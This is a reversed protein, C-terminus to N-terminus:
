IKDDIYQKSSCSFCRNQQSNMFSTIWQSTLLYNFLHCLTVCPFPWDCFLLSYLSSNNHKVNKLKQQLVHYCKRYRQQYPFSIRFTGIQWELKSIVYWFLMFSCLRCSSCRDLSFKCLRGRCLGVGHCCLSKLM